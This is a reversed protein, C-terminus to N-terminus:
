EDKSKSLPRPLDQIIAIDAEGASVQKLKEWCARLMDPILDSESVESHPYGVDEGASRWFLPLERILKWLVQEEHNLLEPYRFALKAFRDAEDVDWLQDAEDLVNVSKAADTAPSDSLQVERLAEQIAWESFSSLTRRQKRAALDALYRLKPDLRVTLTTSRGLKGGAPSRGKKDNAM